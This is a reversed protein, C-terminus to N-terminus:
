LTRWCCGQCVAAFIHKLISKKAYRPSKSWIWLKTTKWGRPDAKLTNSVSSILYSFIRREKRVQGNLFFFLSMRSISCLISHNPKEVFSTLATNYCLLGQRGREIESEKKSIANFSDQNTHRWISIQKWGVCKCSACISLPDNKKRKKVTNLSDRFTLIM